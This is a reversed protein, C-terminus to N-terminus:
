SQEPACDQPPGRHRVWRERAFGLRKGFEGPVRVSDAWWCDRHEKFASAQQGKDGPKQLLVPLPPSFSSKPSPRFAASFSHPSNRSSSARM